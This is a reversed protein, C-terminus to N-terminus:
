KAATPQHEVVTPTEASDGAHPGTAESPAHDPGSEAAAVPAAGAPQAPVGDTITAEHMEEGSIAARFDRMTRGLARGVEPLRKPGLVLLAVVLVFLLHTPQLIDGIV